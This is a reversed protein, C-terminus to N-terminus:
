GFNTNTKQQGSSTTQKQNQKQNQKQPENNIKPKITEQKNEKPITESSPIEQKPKPNGFLNGFLDDTKKEKGDSGEKKEDEYLHPFLEKMWDLHSDEDSEDHAWPNKEKKVGSNTKEEYKNRGRNGGFLWNDLWEDHQQPAYLQSPKKSMDLLNPNKEEGKKSLDTKKNSAINREMRKIRDETEKAGM